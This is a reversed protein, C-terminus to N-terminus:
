GAVRCWHKEKIQKGEGEFVFHDELMNQHNGAENPMSKKEYDSSKWEDSFMYNREGETAAFM